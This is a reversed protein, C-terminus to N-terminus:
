QPGINVTKNGNTSNCYKTKQVFYHLKKMVKTLNSPFTIFRCSKKIFPLLCFAIENNQQKIKKKLFKKM